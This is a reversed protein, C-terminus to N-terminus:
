SSSVYITTTHLLLIYYYYRITTTHLLLIEYYYLVYITTHPCMALPASHEPDHVHRYYSSEYVTTHPCMTTHPRM